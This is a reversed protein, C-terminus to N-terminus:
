ANRILDQREAPLRIAGSLLCNADAGNRQTGCIGPWGVLNRPQVRPQAVGTTSPVDEHDARDINAWRRKREAPDDDPAAITSSHTQAPRDSHIPGSNTDTARRSGIISNGTALRHTELSM